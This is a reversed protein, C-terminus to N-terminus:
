RGSCPDVATAPLGAADMASLPMSLIMAGVAAVASFAAGRRLRHYEHAQARDLADQEVIASHAGPALEAGYGTSRIADVLHVASTARPDYIVTANGLMLNVVAREVGAQRELTRQIRSSCAVCTMGSIPITVSDPASPITTPM